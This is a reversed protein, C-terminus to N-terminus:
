EIRIRATETADSALKYSVVLLLWRLKSKRIYPKGIQLAVLSIPLYWIMMVAMLAKGGLPRGAIKKRTLSNIKPLVEMAVWPALSLRRRRTQGGLALAAERFSPPTPCM